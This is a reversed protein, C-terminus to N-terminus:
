ARLPKATGCRNTDIVSLLYKLIAIQERGTVRQYYSVREQAREWEVAPSQGTSCAAMATLRGIADDSLKPDLKHANPLVIAVGLAVGVALAVFSLGVREIWKKNPQAFHSIVDQFRQDIM